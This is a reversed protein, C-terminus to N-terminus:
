ENFLRKDTFRLVDIDDWHVMMDAHPCTGMGGCFFGDVVM